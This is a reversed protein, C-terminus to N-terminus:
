GHQGKQGEYKQKLQELKQEMTIEPLVAKHVLIDLTEEGPIAYLLDGLLLPHIEVHNLPANTTQYFEIGLVRVYEKEMISWNAPGSPISGKHRTTRCLAAKM